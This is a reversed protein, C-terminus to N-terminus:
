NYIFRGSSRHFQQREDIHKGAEHPHAQIPTPEGEQGYSYVILRDRQKGKLEVMFKVVEARELALVEKAVRERQCFQYDKNGISTWFRKARTRMNSETELIQSVLGQKSQQWQLDSLQFTLVPFEDLFENIADLLTQPTGHPSQVYFILGPHRNLPLNGSGVIYGLQQRTRLEHFFPSSMIHNTLTFLAIDKADCGASQYYIMLAADSQQCDVQYLLPGKGQISVLQRPTENTPIAYPAGEQKIYDALHEIQESPWNGYALVELHVHQYLQDIFTPLEVLELDDLAELLEAPPPNNPQLLASLQNFLQNIPKAQQQNRWHRLLQKKIVAFRKEDFYGFRRNSLIMELLTVQKDSFGSLHLTFGGQHAYLQYGMGAIEAQYTIESLHDLLLEVVLRTCAINRISAVAFASDISIYLHGKPVKFESERALWLRFGSEEVLLQPVAAASEVSELQPSNFSIFPNAPPLAVGELPKPDRWRALQDDGFERVSYPTHYWKAVQDHMIGKAVLTMRMNDVTLKGLCAKILEADFQEMAYDGYIVDEEPYYQLNMVLHSALDLPRSQEQYSFARQMVQSKEQYRWDQMGEKAILQFYAFCSEIVDDIYGLGEETLNFSVCFEKFNSGSVGGGAAMANILGAHRLKAILSGHGEYGILNSLYTLPKCRYLPMMNDFAFSLTLKRLEKQPEICIGVSQHEELYLPPLERKTFDHNPIVAFFQLALRELESLPLDSILVLSMLNASYHQQYFALLDDRVQSDPTDSLTDLSGVSFKSFPHAPNVTEKHVQYNRRAEDNLKLRYESDVAQRERDVLEADFTPCIFFASFRALAQEYFPTDIDFFYNTHETGTWANNSGGHRSIFEQYEGPKPFHETGLFLMHELFHALGERESPDDFHGVNVALAAASNQAEPDHVLLVKIQNDLHLHLYQKHDNPSLRM